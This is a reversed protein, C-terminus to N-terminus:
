RKYHLIDFLVITQPFLQTRRKEIRSLDIWHVQLAFSNGFRRFILTNRLFLLQLWPQLVGLFILGLAILYTTFDGSDFNQM